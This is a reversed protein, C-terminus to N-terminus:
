RRTLRMTIDQLAIGQTRITINQRLKSYRVVMNGLVNGAIRFTIKNESAIGAITGLARFTEEEWVGLLRGANASLRAKMAIKNSGSKCNIVLRLQSSTGSYQANCILRDKSGDSLSMTGSGGWKGRLVAFPDNDAALSNGFFITLFVSSAFIALLSNKLFNSACKMATYNKYNLVINQGTAVDANKGTRDVSGNVEIL